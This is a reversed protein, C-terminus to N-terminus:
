RCLSLKCTSSFITFLLKKGVEMPAFAPAHACPIGLKQSLIRSIIAEVGAIADVGQGKRYDEFYKSSNHSERNEKDHDDDDEPFRAVVAIATCGMATLEEGSEIVADMNEITGWSAGSHASIKAIVNLPKSTVVIQSIDIGLTAKMSEAVQIHRLQLEKEIGKDLLLGIKQAKKTIPELYLNNAAFSDLSSGEVYLINNKPWYLMAGNLVNPHTILTDAATSLLRASPLADGAYGGISAGVGTPVIMVTTYPNTAKASIMRRYSGRVSESGMM